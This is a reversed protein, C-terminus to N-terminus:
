YLSCGNVDTCIGENSICQVVHGKLPYVSYMGREYTFRCMVTDRSCDDHCVLLVFTFVEYLFVNSKTNALISELLHFDQIYQM